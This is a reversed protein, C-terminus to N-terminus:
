PNRLWDVVAYFAPKASLTTDFMLPMSRPASGRARTM